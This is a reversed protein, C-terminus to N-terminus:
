KQTFVIENNIYEIMLSGQPPTDTIYYGEGDFVIYLQYIGIMMCLPTDSNKKIAEPLIKSGTELFLSAGDIMNTLVTDKEVEYGEFILYGTLAGSEDTLTASILESSALKAIIHTENDLAYQETFISDPELEKGDSIVRFDENNESFSLEFVRDAGFSTDIFASLRSVTDFYVVTKDNFPKANSVCIDASFDVSSLEGNSYAFSKKINYIDREIGNRHTIDFTVSSKTAGHVGIDASYLLYLYAYETSENFCTLANADAMLEFSVSAVNNEALTFSLEFNTGDLITEIYLDYIAQQDKGSGAYNLGLKMFETAILEAYEDSIIYAGDKESIHSYGLTPPNIYKAYKALTKIDYIFYKNLFEAEPARYTAKGDEVTVLFGANQTKYVSSAPRSIKYESDSLQLKTSGFDLMMGYSLKPEATLEGLREFLISADASSNVLECIIDKASNDVPTEEQKCSALMILLVAAALIILARKM